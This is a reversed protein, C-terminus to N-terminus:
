SRRWMPWTVVGSTVSCRPRLRDDPTAGAFVDVGGGGGGGSDMALADLGHLFKVMAARGPHDSLSDAIAEAQRCLVLRHRHEEVLAIVDIELIVDCRPAFSVVDPQPLIPDM